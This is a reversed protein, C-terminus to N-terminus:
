VCYIRTWASHGTSDSLEQARALADGTQPAAFGKAVMLAAGLGSCLELEQRQRKPGDPLLALQVLAKHFQSAAEAMASRAASKRGAQAWCAVSKEVLRAEAYHQAFLEPQSDMLDPSQAALVEAIQAHL